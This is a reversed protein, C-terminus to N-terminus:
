LTEKRPLKGLPIYHHIGSRTRAIEKLLPERDAENAEFDIDSTNVVLLASQSYHFFFQNFAAGVEDLYGSRLRQEAARGRKKVRELLIEPRAQLYVVLDPRPVQAHLM